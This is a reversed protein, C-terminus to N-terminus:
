PMNAAEGGGITSLDCLVTLDVNESIARTSGDALVFQIVGPHFSGWSNCCAGGGWVGMQSALNLCAEIDNNISLPHEVTHGMSYSLYSYAWFAAIDRRTSTSKEGIMLTNSSGDVINGM